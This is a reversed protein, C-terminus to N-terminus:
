RFSRPATGAPSCPTTWAPDRGVSSAAVFTTNDLWAPPGVLAAEDPHPDVEHLAGSEVDILLLHEDLPREGSRLISLFRGDPSWGSAEECWGGGDYLCRQEGSALDALWVDFDIGNRRNSVFAVSTGDGSVGALQHVFRHDSTLSKLAGLDTVPPGDLDLLYLQTRENGGTDAAIVAQRRGPVYAGAVGEPLETLARLPPVRVAPHQGDALDLEYLQFTGPTDSRILVRGADDADVAQASPLELLARTFAEIETPSEAM